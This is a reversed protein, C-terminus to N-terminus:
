KSTDKLHVSAIGTKDYRKFTYRDSEYFAANLRIMEKYMKKEIELNEKRNKFLQDALENITTYTETM